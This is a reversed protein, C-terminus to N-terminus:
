LIIFIIIMREREKKNELGILITDNNNRNSLKRQIQKYCFQASSILFSNVDAASQVWLFNIEISITVV